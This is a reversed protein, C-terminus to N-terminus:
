LTEKEGSNAGKRRRKLFFVTAGIAAVALVGAGAVSLVGTAVSISAVAGEKLVLQVEVVDGDAYVPSVTLVGDQVARQTGNVSSEYIMWGRKPSIRLELTGGAPIMNDKVDGALVVDAHEAGVINVQYQREVGTAKVFKDERIGSLTYTWGGQSEDYTFRETYDNDNITIAEPVYGKEAKILIRTSGAAEIKDKSIIVEIHDDGQGTVTYMSNDETIAYSFDIDKEVSEMEYVYGGDETVLVDVNSNAVTLTQLKMGEKTYLKISAASKAVVTEPYYVAYATEDLRDYVVLKEREAEDSVDTIDKIDLLSRLTFDSGEIDTGYSLVNSGYGGRRTSDFWTILELEDVSKGAKIYWRDYKYLGEEYCKVAGIELVVSQGSQFLEYSGEALTTQKMSSQVAAKQNTIQAIFGSTGWLGSNDGLYGIRIQNFPGEPTDLICRMATNIGGPGNEKIVHGVYGDTLAEMTIAEKGSIDYFDFIEAEDVSLDKTDIDVIIKDGAGPKHVLYTYVDKQEGICELEETNQYIGNLQASLLPDKKMQVNIRSDKGLVVVAEANVLECSDKEEGNVRYTIPLTTTKYLTSITVDANASAYAIIHEGIVRTSDQDVWSCIEEDNIKLYVRTGYQKGNQFKVNRTGIELLFSNGELASYDYGVLEAYDDVGYGIFIQNSKPRFWFQYGSAEADWLTSDSVKGIGLKFEDADKNLTVNMKVATNKVTEMSGIHICENAVLQVAAYESVDFIDKVTAAADVPVYGTTTLSELKIVSDESAWATAYTGLKRSYDTDVWSLVEEGDIKIYIERGYTEGTNYVVDREGIELIFNDKEMGQFDYGVVAGYSEVDYGIFIQNSAPRFWFQWGSGEADWYMDPTTKSLALKFEQSEKNFTVKTKLAVQTTDKLSGLKTISNKNLTVESLGLSDFLDYVVNSKRILYRTSTLSQLRASINESAYIIANQGLTRDMDKDLWTAVEVGDIKVYVIRGYDEIKQGDKQVEIDYTGVELLFEDTFSHGVITNVTDMDSGILVQGERLGIFWGSEEAEWITNTSTKSFALKLEEGTAFVEDLKVKTRLAINTSQKAKGILLCQTEKSDTYALGGNLESIDQIVPTKYVLKYGAHTISQVKVDHGASAFAPVYTGLERELNEDLWSLVEVDNVKVYVKRARLTGEQNVMNVVGFELDFAEQVDTINTQAVVTDVGELILIRGMKPNIKVQYGSAVWLNNAVTKSFGFAFEDADKTYNTKPVHLKLGVNTTKKLDTLNFFADQTIPIESVGTLEYLDYITMAEQSLEESEVSGALKWQGAGLYTFTAENYQVAQTTSGFKGHITVQMGETPTVDYPKNDKLPVYYLNETVKVIQIDPQLEEGVYIGGELASYRITWNDTDFPLGDDDPTQDANSDSYFFFGDTCNGASNRAEDNLIDVTAIVPVEAPVDTQDDAVKWGYSATAPSSNNTAEICEFTVDFQVRVSDADDSILLGLKLKDGVAFTTTGGEFGIHYYHFWDPVTIWPKELKYESAQLAAGNKTVSGEIVQPSADSLTDAAAFRIWGGNGGLGIGLISDKTHTTVSPAKPAATIEGEHINITFEEKVQLTLSGFPILQGERLTLTHSGIESYTTAGPEVFDYKLLMAITNSNVYVYALGSQDSVGTKEQGDLTVTNTWDTGCNPITAGEVGIAIYYRGEPDQARSDTGLSLTVETETGAMANSLPMLGLVLGIALVFSMVRKWKKKM